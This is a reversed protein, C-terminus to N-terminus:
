TVCVYLALDDFDTCFIFLYDNLLFFDNLWQSKEEHLKFRKGSSPFLVSETTTHIVNLSCGRAFCPPLLPSLATVIASMMILM